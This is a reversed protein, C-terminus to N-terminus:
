NDIIRSPSENCCCLQLHIISHLTIFYINCSFENSKCNIRKAMTATTAAKGSSSLSRRPTMAAGAKAATGRAGVIARAAGLTAGAIARAGAGLSRAARLYKLYKRM